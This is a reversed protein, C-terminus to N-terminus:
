LSLKFAMTELTLSKNVNMELLAAAQEVLSINGLIQGGTLRQALSSIGPLDHTNVVMAARNTEKYVLADRFYTNVIKLSQRVKKKDQGLFAALALLSMPESLSARCLLRGVEARFNIMDEEDLELAQRISGGSLGALLGATDPDKDGKEVLWRAVDAAPIPQFRVQQCRSLITLPLSQPRATLLIILNNAAPEELTKLLANAAAPNALHFNLLIAQGKGFHNLTCVPADGSTTLAKAVGLRVDPDVKTQLKVDLKETGLLGKLDLDAQQAKGRGVRAIGFVDDLLGQNVAKLHGDFIAPRVDAIVTGGNRVFQAIHGAVGDPLLEVDFLVLIEYGELADSTVQDEHGPPPLHRWVAGAQGAGGAVTPPWSAVPYDNLDVIEAPLVDIAVLLDLKQIAEEVNKRQPLAQLLNSGYVIWGKVPCGKTMIRGPM